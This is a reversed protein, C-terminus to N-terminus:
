VKGDSLKGLQFTTKLFTDKDFSVKNGDAILPAIGAAVFINESIYFSEDDDGDSIWGQLKGSSLIRNLAELRINLSFCKESNKNFLYMAVKLGDSYSPTTNNDGSVLSIYRIMEDQSITNHNLKQLLKTSILM